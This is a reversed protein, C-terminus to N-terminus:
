KRRMLAMFSLLGLIIPKPMLLLAVKSAAACFAEPPIMPLLNTCSSFDSCFGEAETSLSISAKFYVFGEKQRCQIQKEIFFDSGQGDSRPRGVRFISFTADFTAKEIWFYVDSADFVLKCIKFIPFTADFWSKHNRFDVNLADSKFKKLFPCFTVDTAM